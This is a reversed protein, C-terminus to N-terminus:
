EHPVGGAVRVPDPAAAFKVRAEELWTEYDGPSLAQVAIPMASHNVGCIQNCQGYIIGESTLSMWGENIRGAIAYVQVVASPLFFAHMVDNSTILLQIKKGTPVVLPNDVDLLYTQSEPDIDEKELMYSDFVVDDDPYEYTWYWQNATIKITMDPTETKESFYLVRFSPIAVIVLILVPIVTWLIEITTNHTTRSPNPNRSARFRICAYVMLALVFIAIAFILWLLFDHFLMVEEAVTSSPAQAGLQWPTPQAALAPGAAAVCLAPVLGFLNGILAGADRIQIM